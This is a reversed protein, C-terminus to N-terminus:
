IQFNMSNLLLMLQKWRNWNFELEFISFVQNSYSQRFPAENMQCCKWENLNITKPTHKIQGHKVDSYNIGTKHLHEHKGSYISAHLM